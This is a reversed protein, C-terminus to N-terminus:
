FLASTTSPTQRSSIFVICWSMRSAISTLISSQRSSILLSTAVARRSSTPSCSRSALRVSLACIRSARHSMRSSSVSLSTKYSSVLLCATSRAASQRLGWKWMRMVHHVGWCLADGVGCARLWRIMLAMAFGEVVGAGARMGFRWTRVVAASVDKDEDEEAGVQSGLCLAFAGRRRAHALCM